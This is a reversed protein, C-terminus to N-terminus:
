TDLCKLLVGLFNSKMLIVEAASWTCYASLHVFPCIVAVRVPVNKTVERQSRASHCFVLKLDSIVIFLSDCGVIVAWVCM